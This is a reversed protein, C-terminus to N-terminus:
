KFVTQPLWLALEPALYLLVLALIQIVVFPIIGRYLHTTSIEPPAVGKLYFLAFGFPPTLFSTQLNVAFLIALWIPDFGLRVLIPSVIPLVIFCVEFFDLFFGLLFILFLVSILVIHRNLEMDQIFGAILEDGALGRFVIGFFQAGILIMFVMATVTTTESSVDKLIGWNIRRKAAAIVIAGLAGCAAAETPSAFGLFISGLVILILAAPPLLAGLLTQIQIKPSNTAGTSEDRLSPALSPNLFTRLAIYLIYLSVLLIGPLLAGTFLDGVDVNMIDGLLVLVISPPIIQGLTGSAAIVGTALEPSYKRQLMTPLSLVGMTIVTAGVIGTAAALLMGVIVVSIALGGRINGFLQEMSRLLEEALKSRELMFGMFVFLPVAMLTINNMVGFIRTPAFAFDSIYFVDLGYGILGFLIATGALTFAVPYGLMIAMLLVAFMLIPLLDIM